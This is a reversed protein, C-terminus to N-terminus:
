GSRTPHSPAKCSSEELPTEARGVKSCAAPAKRFPFLKVGAEHTLGAEGSPFRLGLAENFLMSHYVM